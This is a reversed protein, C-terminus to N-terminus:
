ALETVSRPMRPHRDEDQMKQMLDFGDQATILGAKVARQMMDLTEATRLGQERAYNLSERDDSIWCADEFEAWHTIVYCTEAEGLHQLPRNDSGGFVATRIRRIRAADTADTVRLAEGLWGQLPINQLAPLWRASRRAERAVSQTWRGRGGLVERLIELREIAAFNCLVTNDPFLFESM